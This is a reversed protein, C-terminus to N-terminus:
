TKILPSNYLTWYGKTDMSIRHNFKDSTEAFALQTATNLDIRSPKQKKCEICDYILLKIWKRLSPFSYLSHFNLYTRDVGFHGSLNHHHAHYFATLLLKIPLCYLTTENPSYTNPEYYTYYVLNDQENIALHEFEDYYDNSGKNASIKSTKVLPKNKDILWKRIIALVFDSKQHYM